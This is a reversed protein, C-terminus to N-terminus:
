RHSAARVAHLQAEVEDLDGRLKRVQEHLAELEVDRERLRQRLVETEERAEKLQDRQTEIVELTTKTAISEVEPRWKVIVAFAGVIASVLSGIGIAAGTDLAALLIV